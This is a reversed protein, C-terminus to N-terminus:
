GMDPLDELLPVRFAPSIRALMVPGAVDLDPDLPRDLRPFFPTAPM